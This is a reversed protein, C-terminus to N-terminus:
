EFLPNVRSVRLSTFIWLDALLVNVRSLLSAKFSIPEYVNNSTGKVEECLGTAKELCCSSLIFHRSRLAARDIAELIYLVLEDCSSFASKLHQGTTVGSRQPMLKELNVRRKNGIESSQKM